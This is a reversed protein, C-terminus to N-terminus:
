CWDSGSTRLEIFLVEGNCTDDLDSKKLTYVFGSEQCALALPLGHTETLTACLTYIDGVNEKYTERAVDLLRNYNAQPNISSLIEIWILLIVKM